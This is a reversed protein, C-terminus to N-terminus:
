ATISVIGADDGTMASQRAEARQRCTEATLLAFFSLALPTHWPDYIVWERFGLLLVAVIWGLLVTSLLVADGASTLSLGAARWLFVAFLGAMGAVGLLGLSWLVPVWMIDPAMVGIENVRTDQASSRFGAGLLRNEDGLWDNTTRWWIFRYELNSDKLASGQSRTETLRTMLYATQVPLLMHAAGIFVALVVAIQVLRKVARLVDGQTLLRMALIVAIEIIAVLVLARTYSLWIAALTVAFVGVWVLNWKRRAVCFAVALPLYQPMFYFSRTLIEGGVVIYQYEVMGAYIYLHLGQHLVYLGAAVTNVVVIATLFDMTERRGAHCLIGRLLFYGAFMYLPIRAQSIAAGLDMYRVATGGVRFLAYAVVGVLVVEEPASLRPGLLGRGRAARRRRPLVLDFYVVWTAALWFMMSDAPEWRSPVWFPKLRDFFVSFHMNMLFPIGLLFVRQRLSRWLFYLLLATPLVLRLTNM